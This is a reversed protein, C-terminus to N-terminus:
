GDKRPLPGRRLEGRSAQGQARRLAAVAEEDLYHRAETPTLVVAPHLLLGGDPLEDVVVQMSKLGFRALSVRGRQDVDIVVRKAPILHNRNSKPDDVAGSMSM